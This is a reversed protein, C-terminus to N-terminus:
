FLENREDVGATIIEYDLLNLLEEHTMEEVCYFCVNGETTRIYRDYECIGQGCKCCTTLPEPEIPELRQELM